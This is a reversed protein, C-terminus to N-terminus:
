EFESIAWPDFDVPPTVPLPKAPKEMENTVIEIDGHIEFGSIAFQPSGWNSPHTQMIRFATYYKGADVFFLRAAYHPLLDFSNQREDLVQWAQQDPDFAQFVFSILHHCTRAWPGSRIAYATPRVRIHRFDIMLFQRPGIGSEFLQESRYDLVNAPHSSPRCANHRLLLENTNYCNHSKFTIYHLIGHFIDALNDNRICRLDRSAYVSYDVPNHAEPIGAESAFGHLNSDRLHGRRGSLKIHIESFHSNSPPMLSPFLSMFNAFPVSDTRAARERPARRIM